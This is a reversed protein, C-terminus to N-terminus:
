GIIRKVRSQIENFFSVCDILKNDSMQYNSIDNLIRMVENSTYSKEDTKVNYKGEKIKIKEKWKEFIEYNLENEDCYFNVGSVDIDVYSENIKFDEDDVVDPFYKKFSKIQLGVNVLDENLDKYHKKTVFLKENEDLNNPFFHALYASMEYARWWNGDKYFRIVNVNDKRSEEYSFIEKIKAM